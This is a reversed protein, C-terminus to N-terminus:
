SKWKHPLERQHPLRPVRSISADKADLEHSCIKGTGALTANKLGSAAALNVAHTSRGLSCGPIREKIDHNRQSVCKLCGSIEKGGEDGENQNEVALIARLIRKRAVEHRAAKVGVNGRWSAVGGCAMATNTLEM